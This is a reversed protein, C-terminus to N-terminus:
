SAAIWLRRMRITIVKLAVAVTDNMGAGEAAQLVLSLDEGLTQRIVEAGPEGVGDLDRLDRARNGGREIEVLSKDFSEGEDM